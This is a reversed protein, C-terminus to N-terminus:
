DSSEVLNKVYNNSDVGNDIDSEELDTHEIYCLKNYIENVDEQVMKKVTRDIPLFKLYM